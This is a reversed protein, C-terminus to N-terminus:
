QPAQGSTTQAYLTLLRSIEEHWETMWELMEARERGAAELGSTLSKNAKELKRIKNQQRWVLDQYESRTTIGARTKSRAQTKFQTSISLRPRIRAFERSAQGLSTLNEMTNTDVSSNTQATNKLKVREGVGIAVAHVRSKRGRKKNGHRVSTWEDGVEVGDVSGNTAGNDEDDKPNNGIEDIYQDLQPRLIIGHRRELYERLRKLGLREYGFVVACIVFKAYTTDQDLFGRPSRYMRQYCPFHGVYRTSSTTKRIYDGRRLLFYIEDLTSQSWRNAARNYLAVLTAANRQNEPDDGPHAIDEIAIQKPSSAVSVPKSVM